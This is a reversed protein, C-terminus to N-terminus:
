NITLPANNGELMESNEDRLQEYIHEDSDRLRVVRNAQTQAVLQNMHDETENNVCITPRSGKRGRTIEERENRATIATHSMQKWRKDDMFGVPVLAKRHPNSKGVFKNSPAHFQRESASDTVKSSRPTDAIIQDSAIHHAEPASESQDTRMQQESNLEESVRYTAKSAGALRQTRKPQELTFGDPVIGKTKTFQRPIKSVQKTNSITGKTFQAYRPSVTFYKLSEVGSM